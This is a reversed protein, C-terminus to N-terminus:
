DFSHTENYDVYHFTPPLAAPQVFDQEEEDSSIELEGRNVLKMLRDYEIRVTRFEKQLDGHVKKLRAHQEVEYDPLHPGYRISELYAKDVARRLREYRAIINIM